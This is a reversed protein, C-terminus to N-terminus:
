AQHQDKASNYGKAAMTHAVAQEVEELVTMLPQTTDIDAIPTDAYTIRPIANIKRELKSREHDPKRACATDLDVNLRIVLDPHQRAMWTFTDHEYHTLRQIIWNGSANLPLRPGDIAGPVSVQPYRDAVIINNQRHLELMREFRRKRRLTFAAIVLAPLLSPQTDKDMKSNASTSKKSIKKGLFKGVLPWQEIARGVNGAQKGLHCYEAPGYRQVWQTLHECVTSKGSGDCGIVAIIPAHGSKM